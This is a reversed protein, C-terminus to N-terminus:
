FVSFHSFFLLNHLLFFRVLDFDEKKELISNKQAWTLHCVVTKNDHPFFKMLPVKSLLRILNIPMSQRTKKQRTQNNLTKKRHTAGGDKRKM